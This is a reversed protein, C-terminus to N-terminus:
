KPTCAIMDHKEDNLLQGQNFPHFGDADKKPDLAQIIKQTNIHKPLPLQVIYASVSTDHNLEHIHQLLQAESCDLPLKQLFFDIGVRQAYKKKQEVYRM